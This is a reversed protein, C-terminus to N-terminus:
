HVGIQSRVEIEQASRPTPPRERGQDIGSLLQVVQGPRDKLLLQTHQESGPEFMALIKMAQEINKAYLALEALIQRADAGEATKDFEKATYACVEMLSKLVADKQEEDASNYQLRYSAIAIKTSHLAFKNKPYKRCIFEALVAADHYQKNEYSLFATRYRVENLKERNEDTEDPLKAFALKYQTFAGASAAKHEEQAKKKENPNDALQIKANSVTIARYATEAAELTKDFPAKNEAFDAAWDSKLKDYAKQYEQAHADTRM